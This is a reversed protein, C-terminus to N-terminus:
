ECSWLFNLSRQLLPSPVARGSKSQTRSDVKCNPLCLNMTGRGGTYAGWGGLNPTKGSVEELYWMFSSGGSDSSVSITGMEGADGVKNYVDESFFIGKVLIM